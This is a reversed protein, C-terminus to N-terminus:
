LAGDGRLREVEDTSMGLWSALVEGTHQGLVPSTV